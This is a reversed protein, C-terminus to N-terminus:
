QLPVAPYGLKPALSDAIYKFVPGADTGGATGNQMMAAIVYRPNEAPYFGAFWTQNMAKGNEVWGTQATSTKGGAGGYVPAAPRGTGEKVTTILFQQLQNATSASFVRDPTANSYTRTIQRNKDVSAKVLRPMPLLGGAAVASVMRAVQIPTAMFTGQGISFNALAAPIDLESSSPLNGASPLLGLALEYTHGFGLRQAMNLVTEAGIKQGLTIYYINSSNSMGTAMDMLGYGSTNEDHFTRGAVVISGNDQVSFNASVGSELAAAAVNIKFVSGVNFATFARNLMPSNTGKLAAALNNQNFSPNSVSALIDGTKPDMVVVAGAKLYKDAAKQAAQQIDRDITLVIGGTHSEGEQRIEPPLGTLSRGTADVPFDAYLTQTNQALVANYSKELGAAGNGSSDLYGILQPAIDSGSYRQDMRVVLVGPAKLNPTNVRISFPLRTSLKKKLDDWDAVHPSLAAFQTSPNKQPRVVAIYASQTNVLSNLNTDYITGREVGLKLNYSGHTQAAQSIASDPQALRVLRVILLGFLAIFVAFLGVLRKSKM